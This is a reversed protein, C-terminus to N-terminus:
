IGGQEHNVNRKTFVSCLPSKEEKGTPISLLFCSFLFPDGAGPSVFGISAVAKIKM